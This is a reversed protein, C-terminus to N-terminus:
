PSFTNKKNLTMSIKGEHNMDYTNTNYKNNLYSSGNNKSVYLNKSNEKSNNKYSINSDSIETDTLKKNIRPITNNNNNNKSTYIINNNNSKKFIGKTKSNLYLNIQPSNPLKLKPTNNETQRNKTRLNKLNDININTM